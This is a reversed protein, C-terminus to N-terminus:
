RDIRVEIAEVLDSSSPLTRDEHHNQPVAVQNPNPNPNHSLNLTLTM